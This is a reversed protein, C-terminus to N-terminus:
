ATAPAAEDEHYIALDYDNGRTHLKVLRAPRWRGEVSLHIQRDISFIGSPILVLKAEASVLIANHWGLGSTEKTQQHWANAELSAALRIQSCRPTGHFVSLGANPKGHSSGLRRLIAVHWDLEDELRYAMLAGIRQWPRRATFRAGLGGRSMDIIEWIDMMQQDGATELLCLVEMQTKPPAPPAADAVVAHDRHRNLYTKLYSDYDLDRGSKAFESAAIMRRVMDLGNVVRITGKAQLRPHQRSPPDASWNAILMQLLGLMQGRNCGTSALWDPLKGERTLNARLQILQHQGQGVGFFRTEPDYNGGERWRAPTNEGVPLICFPTLTSRSDVFRCHPEIWRVLRDTAEIENATLNTLPATEFLLSVQYEKWVGSQLQHQPYAPQTLHAIGLERAQKLLAHAAVWWSPEAAQYTMRGLKKLQGWAYMARIAFRALLRKDHNQPPDAALMEFIRRNCAYSGALFARLVGGALGPLGSQTGALLGAWCSAAADQAFEDLGEVARVARRPPMRDILHSPEELWDNLERLTRQPDTTPLEALYAAIAKDSGLPHSSDESSNLRSAIWKLM